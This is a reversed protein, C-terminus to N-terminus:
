FGVDEVVFEEYGGSMKLQREGAVGRHGCIWM